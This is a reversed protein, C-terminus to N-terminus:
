EVRRGTEPDLGMIERARHMFEAEADPDADLDVHHLNYDSDDDGEPRYPTRDAHKASWERHWAALELLKRRREPDMKV